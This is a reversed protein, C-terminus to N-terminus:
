ISRLFKPHRDNRAQGPIWYNKPNDQIGAAAQGLMVYPPAPIVIKFIDVM